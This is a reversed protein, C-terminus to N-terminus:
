ERREPPTLHVKSPTADQRKLWDAFREVPTLDDALLLRQFKLVSGERARALASSLELMLHEGATQSRWSEMDRQLQAAQDDSLEFCIGRAPNSERLQQDAAAAMRRLEVDDAKAVQQALEGFGRQKLALAALKVWARRAFDPNAQGFRAAWRDAQEIQASTPATSGFLAAVGRWDSGAGLADQAPGHGLGARLELRTRDLGGSRVRERLLAAEAEPSGTERFARELERLREDSM